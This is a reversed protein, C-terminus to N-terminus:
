GILPIIEHVRQVKESEYKQGAELTQVGMRRWEQLQTVAQRLTLEQLMGESFEDFDRKNIIRAFPKPKNLLDREDKTRRKDNATNKRYDLLSHEFM